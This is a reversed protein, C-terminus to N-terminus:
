RRIDAELKQAIMTLSTSVLQTVVDTRECTPVLAEVDSMDSLPCKRVSFMIRVDGEKPFVTVICQSLSVGDAANWLQWKGVVVGGEPNESEVGGCHEGVAQVARTFAADTEKTHFWPQPVAYTQFSCGAACLAVLALACKV